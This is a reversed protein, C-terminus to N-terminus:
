NPFFLLDLSDNPVKSGNTSIFLRRLGKITRTVAELRITEGFNNKVLWRGDSFNCLLLIFTNTEKLYQEGDQKCRISNSIDDHHLFINQSIM